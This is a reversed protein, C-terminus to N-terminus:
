RVEQSDFRPQLYIMLAVFFCILACLLFRDACWGLLDAVKWAGLLMLVDDRWTRSQWWQFDYYADRLRHGWRECYRDFALLNLPINTM